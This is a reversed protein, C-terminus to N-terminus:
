ENLKLVQFLRERRGAETSREIKESKRGGKLNFM